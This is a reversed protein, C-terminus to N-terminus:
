DSAGYHRLINVMLDDKKRRAISVLPSGKEDLCNPNAGNKLHEEVERLNGRRVAEIVRKDDYLFFERRIKVIIRNSDINTGLVRVAQSLKRAANKNSKSIIEKAFSIINNNYGFYTQLFQNELQTAIENRQEYLKLDLMYVKFTCALAFSIKRLRAELDKLDPYYEIAIQWDDYAHDAAGFGNGGSEDFFEEGSQIDSGRLRDYQEKTEKDSLVAYAENIEAMKRNAEEANGEFRDPHYRQALARYVAHIIVEEATPLVGLIGYYDKRLDM